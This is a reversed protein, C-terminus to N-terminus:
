NGVTCSETAKQNRNQCQLVVLIQKIGEAMEELTGNNDLEFDVHLKDCFEESLHYGSGDRKNDRCIRILIGGVEKIAEAENPFRCDSIVVDPYKKCEEMTINVWFNEGIIDRGFETGLHQMFFRPSKGCLVDCPVEKLDGEIMRNINRDSFDLAKLLASLMVKIGHAFKVIRFGEKSLFAAATDKGSRKRGVLGILM